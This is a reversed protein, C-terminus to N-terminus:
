TLTISMEDDGVDRVFSLNASITARGRDDGYSPSLLQVRPAALTVINGATIGHVMSLAGLTDDRCATFYDKTSIAPAQLSIQGAPKRNVIEVMEEGPNNFYEVQNAHDYSFQNYPATVGHLSFTPTHAFSVPRPRQFASVDRVLPAVTQPTVFLGTFVFHLYPIQQSNLAITFTGRAGTLAHRQGDLEFYMTLSDTGSSAPSYVVDTGADVVEAMQCGRMLKGWAPATGATGSGALEVDFEVVVYTGPHIAGDNGFTGGDLEREIPSGELPRIQAGKTLIADAGTLVVATNYTLELGAYIQTKKLRLAM